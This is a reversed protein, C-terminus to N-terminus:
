GAGPRDSSRRAARAIMHAAVPVTWTQFLGVLILTTIDDATRLRLAVGLLMMLLGLVQPKTAAHMRSLVDPLRLLGVGAILSWVAGGLIVVDGIDDAIEAGRM